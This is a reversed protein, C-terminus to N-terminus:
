AVGEEGNQMKDEKEQLNQRQVKVERMRKEGREEERM